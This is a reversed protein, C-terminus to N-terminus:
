PVTGAVTVSLGATAGQCAPPAAANLTVPVQLVTNGGPLVTSSGTATGVTYNGSGCGYATGTITATVSTITVGTGLCDDTDSVTVPVDEPVGPALLNAANGVSVTVAGTCATHANPNTDSNTVNWAFVAAVTLAAVGVIVLLSTLISRKM